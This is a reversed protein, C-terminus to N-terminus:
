VAIDDAVYLSIDNHNIKNFLKVEVPNTCYIDPIVEGNQDYAKSNDIRAQVKVSTITTNTNLITVIGTRENIYLESMSPSGEIEVGGITYSVIKFRVTRQNSDAPYINIYKNHDINLTAGYERVLGFRLNDKFEISSALKVVNIKLTTSKGGESTYITLITSGPATATIVKKVGKDIMENNTNIKIIENSMSFMPIYNFDGPANDMTIELEASDAVGDGLYLTISGDEERELNTEVSISLNAYKDGCGVLVGCFGSIILIFLISFLRKM